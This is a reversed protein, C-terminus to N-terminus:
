NEDYCYRRKKERRAPCIIEEIDYGIKGFFCPCRFFNVNRGRYDATQGMKEPFKGPKRNPHPPGSFPPLWKGSFATYHRFYV